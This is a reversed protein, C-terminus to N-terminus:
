QAFGEALVDAVVPATEVLGVRKATDITQQWGAATETGFSSLPKGQVSWFPVSKALVKMERPADIESAAKVVAQV